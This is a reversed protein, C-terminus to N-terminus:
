ARVDIIRGAAENRQAKVFAGLRRGVNDRQAIHKCPLVNCGCALADRRQGKVRNQQM